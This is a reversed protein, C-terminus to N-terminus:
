AAVGPWPTRAVAPSVRHSVGLLTVPQERHQPVLHRHQM